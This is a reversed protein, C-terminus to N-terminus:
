SSPRWRSFLTDAGRAGYLLLIPDWYPMRYRWVVILIVHVAMSIVLVALAFLAVGRREATLWGVAALVTLAVYFAGLGIVIWAPWYWPRPYPRLWDWTKLLFLRAWGAPDGMRESLAKRFFYRSRETPSTRGARDLAETQDRMDRDFERMWRIYEERTRVGYFRVNWDSNGQYFANGGADNIPIFERFVIANRLTWPALLLFFGFLASGALHTRARFPYRRDFLPALLLPALVLASPRTLAGLALAGGAGLALTTSPRDAAALLLYAFVLLLLLFLTESQVDAALLIFAPNLAAAIGTAMAVRRRRFLRASLAALLLPPFSGLVVNSLKALAIRDPNGLTAAALFAPYGPARFFFVDTRDPYRGQTVMTRAALLYARADGFRLTSFGVIGAAAVRVALALLFLLVM